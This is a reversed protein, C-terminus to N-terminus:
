LALKTLSTKESDPLKLYLDNFSQGSIPDIWDGALDLLPRLAFARETLRLHPVFLSGLPEREGTKEWHNRAQRWSAEDPYPSVQAALIDLDLTRSSWLGDRVRGFDQEIDLLRDMVTRLPLATEVQAAANVYDPKPPTEVPWAPSAFYSSEAILTFADDESIVSLAAKIQDIPSGLQSSLNSGLGIILKITENHVM